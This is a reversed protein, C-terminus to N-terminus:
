PNNRQGCSGCIFDVKTRLDRCEARLRLVADMTRDNEAAMRTLVLVPDLQADCDGCWVTGADADIEVASHRCDGRPSLTLGAGRKATSFRVVNDSM